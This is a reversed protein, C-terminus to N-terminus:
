STDLRNFPYLSPQHFVERETYFINFLIKRGSSGSPPRQQM